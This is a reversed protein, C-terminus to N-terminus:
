LSLFTKFSNKTSHKIHHKKHGKNKLLKPIYLTRHLYSSEKLFWRGYDYRRRISRTTKRDSIVSCLNILSIYAQVRRGRRKRRGFLMLGQQLGQFSVKGLLEWIIIISSSETPPSLSLDRPPHLFHDIDDAPEM